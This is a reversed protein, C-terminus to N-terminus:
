VIAFVDTVSLLSSPGTVLAIGYAVLFFLALVLTVVAGLKLFVSRRIERRLEDDREADKIWTDEIKEARPARTGSGPAGVLRTRRL